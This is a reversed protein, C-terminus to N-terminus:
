VHEAVRLRREDLLELQALLSKRHESESMQQNLQVRLSPLFIEYPLVAEMGFTLAYPTQRTPTRISTRYAWLADILKEPWNSFKHSECTKKLIKILTKNTDEAQGNGQPYYPSFHHLQIGYRECMGQLEQSIFQPGNDTVIAKPVSFRAIINTKIFKVMTIAKVETFAEAEAWKTYYETTTLIFSKRKLDESGIESLPGVVDFAWM